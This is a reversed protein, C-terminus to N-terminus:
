KKLKMEIAKVPCNEACIGCGKCYELDVEYYVRGNKNTKRKKNPCCINEPCIMACMGCGICKEKDFIPTFTRWGGTKNKKTTNPKASLNHKM